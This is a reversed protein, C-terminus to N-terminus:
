ACWYFELVYPGPSLGAREVGAMIQTRKSQSDIFICYSVNRSNLALPCTVTAGEALVGNYRDVIDCKVTTNTENTEVQKPQLLPYVYFYGLAFLAGLVVFAAIVKMM